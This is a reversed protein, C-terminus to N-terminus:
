ARGFAAIYFFLVVHQRGLYDDLRVQEATTGPLSFTPVHDGAQLAMAWGTSLWWLVAGALFMALRRQWCNMTLNGEKNIKEESVHHLRAQLTETGSMGLRGARVTSSAGADKKPTTSSHCIFTSSNLFSLSCCLHHLVLDLHNM